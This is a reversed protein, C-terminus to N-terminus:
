VSFLSLSHPYTLFGGTFHEDSVSGNYSTPHQESACNFMKKFADTKARAGSHPANYMPTLLASSRRDAFKLLRSYGCRCSQKGGRWHKEPSPLLLSLDFKGLFLIPRWISLYPISPWPLPSHFGGARSESIYTVRRWHNWDQVSLADDFCHSITRAANVMM